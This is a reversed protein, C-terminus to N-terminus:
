YACLRSALSSLLSVCIKINPIQVENLKNEKTFPLRRCRVLRRCKFAKEQFKKDNSLTQNLIVLLLEKKFCPGKALFTWGEFDPSGERTEGSNRLSLTKFNCHFENCIGVKGGTAM